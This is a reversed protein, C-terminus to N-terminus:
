RVGRPETWFSVESPDGRHREVDHVLNQAHQFTSNGSVCKIFHSIDADYGWTLIRCNSIKNPLLAEPWCLGENSSGYLTEIDTSKSRGFFGLRRKPKKKEIGEVDENGTTWTSRRGGMLGHVFIVSNHLIRTLM